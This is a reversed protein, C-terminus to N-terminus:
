APCPFGNILIGPTERYTEPIGPTEAVEHALYSFGSWTNGAMRALVSEPEVSKHYPGADSQWFALDWGMLRMQEIAPMRKIEFRGCVIM